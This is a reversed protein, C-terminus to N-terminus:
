HEEQTALSVSPRAMLNKQRSMPRTNMCGEDTFRGTPLYSEGHSTYLSRTAPGLLVHMSQEEICKGVRTEQAM